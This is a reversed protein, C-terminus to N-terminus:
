SADESTGQGDGAVRYPLTARVRFGDSTAAAQFSGGILEARERMGVLGLGPSGLRQEGDAIGEGGSGTDTVTLAVQDDRWSQTVIVAAGIGAHKLANTLAEQCIRFLALRSASPLPRPEGLQVLSVALGAQRAQEVLDEIQTQESVVPLEAQSDAGRHLLGLIRRTDSLAARGTEAIADFARRAPTQDPVSYAGGDAQAIMIALSHAIVDHMERVIRVREANVAASSAQQQAEVLAVAADRGRRRAAQSRVLWIALLGCVVALVGAAAAWALEARSM